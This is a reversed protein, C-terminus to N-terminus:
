FINSKIVQELVIELIFAQLASLLQMRFLKTKVLFLLLCRESELILKVWDM